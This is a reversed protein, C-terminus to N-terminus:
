KKNDSIGIPMLSRVKAWSSIFESLCNMAHFNLLHYHQLFLTFSLLHRFILQNQNSAQSFDSRTAAFSCRFWQFPHIDTRRGIEDLVTNIKDRKYWMSEGLVKNWSFLWSECYLCFLICCLWIIQIGCTHKTAWDHGVRQLGTSQSHPNELCSYQLPNGHEGGPSRALGPISSLDRANWASIKNDSGGPIVWM